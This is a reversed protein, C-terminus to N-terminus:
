SFGLLLGRISERLQLPQVMLMPAHGNRCKLDLVTALWLAKDRQHAKAAAAGSFICAIGFEAQDPNYYRL